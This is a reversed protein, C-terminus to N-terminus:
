LSEKLNLESNKGDLQLIEVMEAVENRVLGKLKM